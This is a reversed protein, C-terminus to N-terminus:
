SGGYKSKGKLIISTGYLSLGSQTLANVFPTLYEPKLGLRSHKEKEAKLAPWSSLIFRIFFNFTVASDILCM